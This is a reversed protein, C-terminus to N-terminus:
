ADKEGRHELQFYFVSVFQRAVEQVLLHMGLLVRVLLAKGLGFAGGPLLAAAADGSWRPLPLLFILSLEGGSWWRLGLCTGCQFM